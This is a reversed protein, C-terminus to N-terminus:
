DIFGIYAGQKTREQVISFFSAFQTDLDTLHELVNNNTIWPNIGRFKAHLFLDYYDTNGIFFHCKYQQIHSLYRLIIPDYSTILTTWIQKDIGFHIDDLSILQIELARKLAQAFWWYLTNNEASGWIHETHYLSVLAFKKALFPNTFYWQNREFHLDNLIEQIDQVTLMNEKLGGILNYDLRDACISGNPQDLATFAPNKALIDAITLGYPALVTDIDWQQLYWEHIDDQYSNETSRHDFVAEAVHSGVTHSADHLLGAIIEQRTLGFRTLLLCVGLCHDFRSYEYSVFFPYVIGYQHIHKIREMMPHEILEIILPDTITFNGYPHDIQLVTPSQKTITYYPHIFSPFLFIFLLLIYM